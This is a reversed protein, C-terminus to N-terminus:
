VEFPRFTAVNQIPSFNVTLSRMENSRIPSVEKRIFMTKSIFVYSLFTTRRAAHRSVSSTTRPIEWRGGDNETRSKTNIRISHYGIKYSFTLGPDSSLVPRPDSSNLVFGTQHHLALQFRFRYPAILISPPVLILVLILNYGSDLYISVRFVRTRCDECYDSTRRYYSVAIPENRLCKVAYDTVNELQPWRTVDIRFQPEAPTVFSIAASRTRSGRTGSACKRARSRGSAAGGARSTVRARGPGAAM